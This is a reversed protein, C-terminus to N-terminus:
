GSADPSKGVREMKRRIVFVLAGAVATVAVGVWGWGMAQAWGMRPAPAGPPGAPGTPGEPGRAGTAGQPGVPGSLGEPGRAGVAGVSGASGPLSSPAPQLYWDPYAGYPFTPLRGTNIAQSYWAPFATAPFGPYLDVKPDQPLGYYSSREPLVYMIHLGGLEKEGYFYADPYDTKIQSVRDRGEWVLDRREGFKIAGTPCTKACATTLGDAVRDKCFTCNYAVFRPIAEKIELRPTLNTSGLKPVKFPCYAVCRGCGICREQDIDVFGLPNYTRAYTPCVQVCVAASCHMCQQKQFLWRTAGNQNVERFRVTTWTEASFDPPNEYTGRNRTPIAPLEWWRKCSVQCARCGICKSVDIILAKEAM